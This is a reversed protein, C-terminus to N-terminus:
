AKKIISEIQNFTDEKEECCKVNHLLDKQKYYEMVPKTKELYTNFRKIFTEENDDTRHELQSECKNCSGEKIFTDNYVNYIANCVPCTIRGLARRMAMDRDIELYIVYDIAQGLENLLADLMEAQKLTRPFGDFIVGPVNGLSEIKQRFLSLMLEDEILIGQSIKDNVERGLDTDTAAIERLLDGSSIHAYNYRTKLLDSQTGKGAAPPAIFIINTM